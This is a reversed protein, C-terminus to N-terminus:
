LTELRRKPDGPDGIIARYCGGNRSVIVVMEPVAVVGVITAPVDARGHVWCGGGRGILTTPKKNQKNPDAVFVWAFFLVGLV